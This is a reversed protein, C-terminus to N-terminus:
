KSILQGSFPKSPIRSIKNRACSKGVCLQIRHSMWSSFGCVGMRWTCIWVCVWVCEWKIRSSNQQKKRKKNKKKKKGCFNYYVCLNTRPIKVNGFIPNSLSSSLPFCFTVFGCMTYVITRMFGFRAINHWNVNHYENQPVYWFHTQM